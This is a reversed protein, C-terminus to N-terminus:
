EHNGGRRELLTAFEQLPMYLAGLARGRARCARDDTVLIRPMDSMTGCCQELFELFARDARHAGEGGGSYVVTVNAALRAQSHDPSDYYIRVRCRPAGATMKVMCQALADRARAGPKGQEYLPDFLDSLGFLINHGDLLLLMQRNEAIARNVQWVPDRPEAEKVVTPTFADYMRSIKAHCAAYLRRLVLAPAAQLEGMGDLLAHVNQLEDATKAENIAALLTALLPGSPEAEGLAERTRAIERELEAAVDGLEPLPNLSEARADAIRRATEVLRELRVRLLRRNGSHRDTETQRQLAREARELLDKPETRATEEAAKRPAALWPRVEESLQQNVQQAVAEAMGNQVAATENRAKNLEATLSKVQQQGARLENEVNKAKEEAAAARKEAGAAKRQAQKLERRAAEGAAQRERPEDDARAPPTGAAVDRATDAPPPLGLCNAMQALTDGLVRRATEVDPLDPNSDKESDKILWGALERVEPREDVLLAALVRPMGCIAALHGVQDSLVEVSLKATLDASLGSDGRLLELLDDDIEGMRGLGATLKQRVAEAGHKNPRFGKLLGPKCTQAYSLILDPPAAALMARLEKVLEAPLKIGDITPM